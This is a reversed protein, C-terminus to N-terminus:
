EVKHLKHMLPVVISRPSHRGLFAAFKNRFGPIIIADGDMLGIYAQRAVDDAKSMGLVKILKTKGFPTKKQFMTETPGPCLTSVTVGSGKLEDRLAQSFSLVYAKTAYYVAMLPGPEFAATSSVNLIRGWRQDLMGPLILKTLHTLSEINLRIAGLVQDMENDIFPGFPAYGANNVLVHVQRGQLAEYVRVAEGPISLDAVIYSVDASYQKRFEASTKELENKHRAVIILNYGNIAFCKAIEKGIGSTAGTVLVLKKTSMNKTVIVM